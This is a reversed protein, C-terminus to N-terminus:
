GHYQYTGANGVLAQLSYSPYLFVEEYHSQEDVFMKLDLFKFSYCMRWGTKGKTTKIITEISRCPPIYGNKKYLEKNIEAIQQPDTCDPLYSPMKWHRPNCGVTKSVHAMQNKDHHKWEPNCPSQRKNRRRFVRMYGVHIEFKYCDVPRDIALKIGSGYPARLFQKPYTLYFFFKGTTIIKSPFSSVNLRM